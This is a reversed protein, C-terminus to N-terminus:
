MLVVPWNNYTKVKLCPTYVYKTLQCSDATKFLQQHYLSGSLTTPQGTLAQSVNSADSTAVSDTARMQTRRKAKKRARYNEIPHKGKRCFTCNYGVTTTAVTCFRTGHDKGKCNKCTVKSHCKDTPYNKKGCKRCPNATM